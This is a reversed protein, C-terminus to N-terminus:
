LQHHKVTWDCPDASRRYVYHAREENRHKALASDLENPESGVTWMGLGEQCAVEIGPRM